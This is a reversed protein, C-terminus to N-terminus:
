EGPQLALAKALDLGGPMDTEEFEEEPAETPPSTQVEQEYVNLQVNVMAKTLSAFQEAYHIALNSRMTECLLLREYLKKLEQDM